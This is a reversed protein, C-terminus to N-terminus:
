KKANKLKNLTGYIYANQRTKNNPFKKKATKKLQRKIKEPM